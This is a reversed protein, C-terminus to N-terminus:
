FKNRCIQGNIGLIQRQRVFEGLMGSRQRQRVFEGLMGSRQRQRVALMEEMDFKEEQGDM